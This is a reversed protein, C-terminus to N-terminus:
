ATATNRPKMAQFCKGLQDLEITVVLWRSVWPKRWWVASALRLPRQVGEKVQIKFCLPPFLDTYRYWSSAKHNETAQATGQFGRIICILCLTSQVGLGLDVPLTLAQTEVGPKKLLNLSTQKSEWPGMCFVCSRGFGFGSRYMSLIAQRNRSEMTKCGLCLIWYKKIAGFSPSVATASRSIDRHHFAWFEAM